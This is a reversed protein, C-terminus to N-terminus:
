LPPVPRCRPGRREAAAGASVAAPTPAPPSPTPATGPHPAPVTHASPAAPAPTQCALLDSPACALVACIVELDDLRVSIPTTSWLASMKGASVRLGAAALRRRVEASSTIGREVARQRLQWRM